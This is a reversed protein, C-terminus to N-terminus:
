LFLFSLTSELFSGRTIKKSVSIDNKLFGNVRNANTKAFKTEDVFTTENNILGMGILWTQKRFTPFHHEIKFSKESVGNTIYSNLQIPQSRNLSDNYIMSESSNITLNSYALTFNTKGAKKVSFIGTAVLEQFDEISSLKNVAEENSDVELEKKINEWESNREIADEIKLKKRPLIIEGWNQSAAKYRQNPNRPGFVKEIAKPDRLSQAYVGYNNINSLAKVVSDTDGTQIAIDYKARASGVGEEEEAERLIDIFRM